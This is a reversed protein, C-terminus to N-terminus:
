NQVVQIRCIHSRQRGKIEGIDCHVSGDTHHSAGVHGHDLNPFKFEPVSTALGIVRKRPFTSASDVAETDDFRIISRGRRWRVGLRGGRKRPFTFMAERDATARERRRVVQIRAGFNDSRDRWANGRFRTPAVRDAAPDMAERDQMARVAVRDTAAHEAVREMAADAVERHEIRNRPFTRRARRDHSDVASPNACFSRGGSRGCKFTLSRHM